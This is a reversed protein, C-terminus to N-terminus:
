VMATATVCNFLGGEKELGYTEFPIVVKEPMLQKLLKLAVRDDRKAFVPVIVLGRVSLFNIYCGTADDWHQRTGIPYPLNEFEIGAGDLVRNMERELRPHSKLYNNKVVMDEGVFRVMGDSHGIFCGPEHPIIVVERHLVDRLISLVRTRSLDPNGKFVFDTLIVKKSSMVVNGGDIKLPIKRIRLNKLHVLFEDTTLYDEREEKAIRSSHKLYFPDFVFKVFTKPTVQVPFYDRSWIDRTGSPLVSSRVNYDALTKVLRRFLSPYAKRLHDSFYVLNADRDLFM